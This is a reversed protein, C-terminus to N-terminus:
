AAKSKNPRFENALKARDEPSMKELLARIKEEPSTTVRPAGPKWIKMAALIEDKSKGAKIMARAHGQAAITLGRIAYSYVIESGFLDDTEGPTEGFNYEFEVGAGDTVQASVIAM